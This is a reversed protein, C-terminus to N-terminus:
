FTLLIIIIYDHLLLIPLTPCSLNQNYVQKLKNPFKIDFANLDETIHLQTVPHDAYNGGSAELFCLSMMNLRSKQVMSCSPM